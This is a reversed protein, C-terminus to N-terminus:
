FLSVHRVSDGISGFSVGKTYELRNTPVVATEPHLSVSVSTRYTYSNLTDCGRVVGRFRRSTDAADRDPRVLANGRVSCCIVRISVQEDNLIGGRCSKDHIGFAVDM